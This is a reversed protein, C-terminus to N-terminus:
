LRRRPGGMVQRPVSCRAQRQEEVIAVVAVQITCVVKWDLLDAVGGAKHLIQVVVLLPRRAEDRPTGSVCFRAEGVVGSPVSAPAVPVAVVGSPYSPCYVFGSVPSM